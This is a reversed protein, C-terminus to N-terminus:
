AQAPAAVLPAASAIQQQRTSALKLVAAGLSVGIVFGNLCSTTAFDIDDPVQIQSSVFVIFGTVVGQVLARMAIARNDLQRREAIGVYLATFVATAVAALSLVGYAFALEMDPLLSQFGSAPTRRPSLAFLVFTWLSLGVYAAAYVTAGLWVYQLVPRRASSRDGITTWKGARLRNRRWFFAVIAAGGHMLLASVGLKLATESPNDSAETTLRLVYYLIFNFVFLVGVMALIALLIDDVPTRVPM